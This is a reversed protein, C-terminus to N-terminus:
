APEFICMVSNQILDFDILKDESTQSSQQDFNLKPRKYLPRCGKEVDSVTIKGVGRCRCSCVAASIRTPIPM